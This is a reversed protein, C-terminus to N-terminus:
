PTPPTPPTVGTVTITCFVIDAEGITVFGVVYTGSKTSQFVYRREGSKSVLEDFFGDADTCNKGTGIKDGKVVIRLLQGSECKLTPPVDPPAGICISCLSVIVMSFLYKM